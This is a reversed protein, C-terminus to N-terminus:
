PRFRQRPSAASTPLFPPTQAQAHSRMRSADHRTRRGDILVGCLLANVQRFRGLQGQPLILSRPRLPHNVTPPGCSKGVPLATWPIIIFESLTQWTSLVNKNVHRHGRDAVLVVVVQQPYPSPVRSPQGFHQLFRPSKSALVTRWSTIRPTTCPDRSRSPNNIGTTSYSVTRLVNVHWTHAAM